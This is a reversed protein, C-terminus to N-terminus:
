LQVRALAPHPARVHSRASARACAGDLQAEKVDHITGVTRLLGRVVEADDASVDASCCMASAGEGVAVPVNPMARVIKPLWGSGSMCQVRGHAPPRACPPSGVAVGPM